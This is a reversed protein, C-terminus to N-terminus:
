PDSPDLSAELVTECSVDQEYLSLLNRASLSIVAPDLSSELVTESSVDQEVDHDFITKVMLIM